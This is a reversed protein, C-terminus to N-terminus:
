EQWYIQRYTYFMFVPTNELFIRNEPEIIEVCKLYKFHGLFNSSLFLYNVMNKCKSILKATQTFSSFQHTILFFEIKQKM